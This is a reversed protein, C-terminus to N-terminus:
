SDYIVRTLKKRFKKQKLRTIHRKNYIKILGVCVGAGNFTLVRVNRSIIQWQRSSRMWIERGLKVLTGRHNASILLPPIIFLPCVQRYLLPVLFRRWVLVPINTTSEGAFNHGQPGHLPYVASGRLHLHMQRTTRNCRQLERENHSSM